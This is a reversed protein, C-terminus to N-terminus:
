PRKPMAPVSDWAREKARRVHRLAMTLVVLVLTIIVVILWAAGAGGEYWRFRSPGLVDVTVTRRDEGGLADKVVLTLNHTGASLRARAMIGAAIPTSRGDVYWTFNLADGDPDSSGEASLRVDKEQPVESGDLPSRIVAYPLLNVPVYVVDSLRVNGVRDTCMFQVYNAAGRALDVLVTGTLNGGETREMPLRRWEGLSEPGALGCRYRAGAVDMGALEDRAVITMTVTPEPQREGSPPLVSLFM